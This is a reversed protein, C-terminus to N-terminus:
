SVVLRGVIKLKELLTHSHCTDFDETADTGAMSGFHLGEAWAASLYETVDYVVNHVAVYAPRGEKGDFKALEEPAFETQQENEQQLIMNQKWLGDM